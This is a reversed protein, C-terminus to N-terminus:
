PLSSSSSSSETTKKSQLSSSSSETTPKYKKLMRELLDPPYGFLYPQGQANVLPHFGNKRQGGVAFIDLTRGGMDCGSLEVAKEKAGEVMFSVIASGKSRPMVVGMVEGCSSLLNTLASKIDDEPLSTDYGSVCIKTRSKLVAEDRRASIDPPMVNMSVDTVLLTGVDSATGNLQLAKEKVGEGVIVIRASRSGIPANFLAVEGCSSFVRTLERKIDAEPLTRDYGTVTVRATRCKQIEATMKLEQVRIASEDM